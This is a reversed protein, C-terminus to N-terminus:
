PGSVGEVLSTGFVDHLPTIQEIRLGAAAYLSEWQERTRERGPFMVLMQVDLLKTAPAGADGPPPLLADACIVRGGEALQARCNGLLRICRADDWNHVIHKLVYLDARPVAEFMDGGVLELRSLLEADEGALRREVVPLLEPLELLVCRLSPYRRLLALALDGLGGGVDVVTEVGSLDAHELVGRVSGLGSLRMAESFDALDAPHAKCYDWYDMGLRARTQAEGTRIAEALGGWVDWWTSGLVEALQKVSASSGATLVESLATPGFRGEPDESLIGLSACARLARELAGPDAAVGPERSLELASRPGSQELLDPIGLRTLASLTQSILAGMLMRMVMTQAPPPEVGTGDKSAERMDM